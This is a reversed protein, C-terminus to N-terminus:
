KRERSTSDVDELIQNVLEEAGIERLQTLCDDCLALGEEETWDYQQHFHVGLM